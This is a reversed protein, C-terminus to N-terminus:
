TLGEPIDGANMATKHQHPSMGAEDAAQKRSSPQDGVRTSADHHNKAPEIQKMLAAYRRM